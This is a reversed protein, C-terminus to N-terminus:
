QRPHAVTVSANTGANDSYSTSVRDVNTGGAGVLCTVTVDTLRHHLSIRLNSRITSGIAKGVTLVSRVLQPWLKSM